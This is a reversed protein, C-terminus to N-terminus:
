LNPLLAVFQRSDGFFKIGKAFAEKLEFDVWNKKSEPILEQAALLQGGSLYCPCRRLCLCGQSLRSDYERRSSELERDYDEYTYANLRGDGREDSFLLFKNRVSTM